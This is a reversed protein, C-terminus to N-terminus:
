VSFPITDDRRQRFGVAMAFLGTFLLASTPEPVSTSAALPGPGTFQQQWVLFDNGDSDGDGDADAGAGIGFSSEWVTLDAGDVDGDTDFDAPNLEVVTWQFFTLLLNTNTAGLFITTPDSAWPAESAISPFVQAHLAAFSLPPDTSLGTQTSDVKIFSAGFGTVNTNEIKLVDGIVSDNVAIVRGIPAVASISGSVSGTVTLPIPTHANYVGLSPDAIFADDGFSSTEYVFSLDITEGLVWDGSANAATGSGTIMFAAQCPANSLLFNILLLWSMCFGLPHRSALLKDAITHSSSEEALFNM